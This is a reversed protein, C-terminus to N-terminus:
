SSHEILTAPHLWALARHEKEDYGLCQMIDWERPLLSQGWDARRQREWNEYRTCDGLPWLVWHVIQTEDLLWNIMM